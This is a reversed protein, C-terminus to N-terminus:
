DDNALFNLTKVASVIKLTIHVNCKYTAVPVSVAQQCLVWSFTDTTGEERDAELYLQLPSFLAANDEFWSCVCLIMLKSDMIRGKKTTGTAAMAISTAQFTELLAM